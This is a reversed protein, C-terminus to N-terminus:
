NADIDIQFSDFDPDIGRDMSDRSSRDRQLKVRVASDAGDQCKGTGERM